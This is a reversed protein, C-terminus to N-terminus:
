LVCADNDVQIGRDTFVLRSNGSVSLKVPQTNWYKKWVMFHFYPFRLNSAMNNSVVGNQWYWETPYQRSDDVWLIKGNPTTYAELFRGRKLWPDFIAALQRVWAPSNKHRLFLKSFASEDFAQHHQSEMQGKWDKVRMFATRMEDTNRLLCFHGSIRRAHTSLLDYRALLESTFTARLDGYLLDIDGFAWFDYGTLEDVHLLGLAPKIDCLKYAADPRFDIGLVRTVRDCYVDFNCDVIKVNAPCNRVPGCDTYILWNIDNNARCSELFCDIWFPWHGFYPIVVCISPNSM